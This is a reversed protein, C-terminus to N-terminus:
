QNLIRQLDNKSVTLLGSAPLRKTMELWNSDKQFVFKFIPLAKELMNNNAMTVATWYKMELNEKQMAEAAAYEQLALPMDNREVALDGRNMHEYARHVSLLRKLEPLPDSSDDVRLDVKKDQWLPVKESGVVIIAASQKGRIDGGAKQAALLTEVVREALPLHKNEEFAKAMAPVVQDNLMMNAQVSFNDGVIQYASQVCNKGTFANVSGNVDLLALQRFDKGADSDILQILAKEASIGSEMLSLGDPGFAPNIFSQTAVVGVGSKGWCVSTGVSFWHSQVGVAMEGTVVDRAVISFTHAFPNETKYNQAQLSAAILAFFSIFFIKKM